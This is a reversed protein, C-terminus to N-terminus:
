LGAMLLTQYFHVAQSPARPVPMPGLLKEGQALHFHRTWVPDPYFGARLALVPAPSCPPKTCTATAYLPSLRLVVCLHAQAQSIILNDCPSKLGGEAITVGELAFIANVKSLYVCTFM